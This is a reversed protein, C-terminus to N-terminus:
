KSIQVEIVVLRVLRPAIINVVSVDAISDKEIESMM